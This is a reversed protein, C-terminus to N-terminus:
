EKIIKFTKKANDISVEMFYVGKQLNAINLQKQAANVTNSQVKQGLISYIEVKSINKEASLNVQNKTPNPYYNFKFKSFANDATSLTSYVLQVKGGLIGSYNVSWGSPLGIVSAFPGVLVGESGEVTGTTMVDLTVDSSPTYLGTVNLTAATIDFGANAGTSRILDYDIGATTSGSAQLKLTGKVVLPELEKPFVALGNKTDGGPSFVSTAEPLTVGRVETMLYNGPYTNITGNNIATQFLANTDNTALATFIVSADGAGAGTKTLSSAVVLPEAQAAVVPPNVVNAGVHTVLTTGTGALKEVVVTHVNSKSDTYTTGVSAGVTAAVTFTALKNTNITTDKFTITGTSSNIIYFARFAQNTILTGSNTIRSAGTIVIPIINPDLPKNGFSAYSGTLTLTGTNILHFNPAGAFTTMVIPAGWSAGNLLTKLSMTANNIFNVDAVPQAGSGNNTMSIIANGALVSTTDTDVVGDNVFNVVGFSQASLGFVSRQMSGRVNLTGKNTIFSPISTAGFVYMGILSTPNASGSIINITTGQAFTVNVGGGSASILGNNFGETVSGLDFGTGGIIVKCANLAGIGIARMLHTAATGNAAKVSSLLFSTTGNFLLKYTANNANVDAGHFNIGGSFNNGRSTDISLLGSGSYVYETATTPVVAPLGFTMGYAGVTNNSGGTLASVISLVGNNVINGGKILVAENTTSEVVFEVDAPITLTSGTIPGTANTLSLGGVTIFPSDLTPNAGNSILAIDAIGPASSAAKPIAYTFTVNTGPTGVVALTNPSITVIKKTVDIATITSGSAIAYGAVKDGVAIDNNAVTLTINAANAAFTGVSTSGPNNWNSALSWNNNTAGTWGINRQALASNAFLLSLLFGLALLSVNMKKM